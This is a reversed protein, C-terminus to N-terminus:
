LRRARAVGLAAEHSSSRLWGIKVIATTSDHLADHGASM